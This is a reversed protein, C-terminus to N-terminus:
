AVGRIFHDISRGPLKEVRLLDRNRFFQMTSTDSEILGGNQRITSNSVALTIPNSAFATKRDNIIYHDAAGADVM